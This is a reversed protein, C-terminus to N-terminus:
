YDWQFGFSFVNAQPYVLQSTISDRGKTRYRDYSFDIKLDDKVMHVIKIGLSLSDFSSLRYDSSYFPGNHPNPNDLYSQYERIESQYFNSQSQRYFRGRPSVIWEDDIKKNWELEFTHGQLDYNDQFYRYNGLAGANLEDSFHSVESFLIFINRRNPRNERFPNITSVSSGDGFFFTEQAAVIKYPDNLYGEPRLFSLNCTIATNPNLLRHIGLVLGTNSKSKEIGSWLDKVEDDHYFLGGNIILTQSALKHAYRIAYSRSLYDPEDSIGHEWDIEYEPTKKTLILQGANRVEEEVYSLWENPNSPSSKEPPLGTPTAGSWADITGLVEVAWGNTLDHESEAYWSRVEVRDNDEIWERYKARFSNQGTMRGIFLQLIILCYLISLRM